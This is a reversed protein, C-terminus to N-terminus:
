RAHLKGDGSGTALVFLELNGPIWFQCTLWIRCNMSVLQKVGRMFTEVKKDAGDAMGWGGLRGGVSWVAWGHTYGVALAYGDSTWALSTVPGPSSAAISQTLQPHHVDLLRVLIPLLTCTWATRYVLSPLIRLFLCSICPAAAFTLSQERMWVCGTTGVAVLGFRSNAAVEVAREAEGLGVPQQTPEEAIFGLAHGTKPDADLKVAPPDPYVM